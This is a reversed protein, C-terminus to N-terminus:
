DPFFSVCIPQIAHSTLGEQAHLLGFYLIALSISLELWYKEDGLEKEKAFGNLVESIFEHLRTVVLNFLRISNHFSKAEQTVQCPLLLALYGRAMWASTIFTTTAPGPLIKPICYRSLMEDFHRKVTPDCTRLEYETLHRHYDPM